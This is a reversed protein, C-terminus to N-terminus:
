RAGTDWSSSADRTRLRRTAEDWDLGGWFALVPCPLQRRRLVHGHSARLKPNEMGATVIRSRFYLSSSNM